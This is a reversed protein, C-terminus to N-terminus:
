QTLGRREGSLESTTGLVLMRGRKRAREAAHLVDLYTAFRSAPQAEPDLAIEVGCGHRYTVFTGLTFTEVSQPPMLTVLVVHTFGGELLPALGMRAVPTTGPGAIVAVGPFERGPNIQIWLDRKNRLISALESDHSVGVGDISVDDHEMRLLVGEPVPACPALAPPAVVRNSFRLDPPELPIELRADHAHPRTAAFATAGLAFLLLPPAGFAPTRGLRLLVGCVISGAIAIVWLAQSFHELQAKAEPINERQILVLVSRDCCCDVIPAVRVQQLAAVCTVVVLAGCSIVLTRSIATSSSRLAAAIVVVATGCLAIAGLIEIAHEFYLFMEGRPPGDFPESGICALLEGRAQAVLWAGTTLAAAMGTLPLVFWGRALPRRRAMAWALMAALLTAGILAVGLCGLFFYGDSGSALLFRASRPVLWRLDNPLYSV